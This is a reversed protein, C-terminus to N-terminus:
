PTAGRHSARGAPDAALAVLYRADVDAPNRFATPGDLRMALCDGADLAHTVGGTTLELRGELVWVQQSIGVARTGPTDYAVRTGAPLVVEVLEIPSPHRPPSLNRRVYGTEPDRWTAQEARRAVPSADARADDAFLSAITVGLGAALRDLVAATPSSKGREILSIMSRSVGAREALADLTLGREARLRALRTALHAHIDADNSEM